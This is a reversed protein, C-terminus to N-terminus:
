RRAHAAMFLAVASQCYAAIESDDEARQPDFEVVSLLDAGKFLAGFLRASQMPNPIFLAKSDHLRRLLNEIQGLFRVQGAEFFLRSLRVQNTKDSAIMQGVGRVDASLLLRLLSNGVALLQDEATGEVGEFLSKPAFAQCRTAIAASFLAEKNEFHKYISLKSIKAHNAVKDMTTAQFGLQGFLDCAADIIKESLAPDVPRGRRVRSNEPNNEPM